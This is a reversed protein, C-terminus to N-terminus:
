IKITKYKNNRIIKKNKIIKKNEAIKKFVIFLKMLQNIDYIKIHKPLYKVLQNYKCMNIFILFMKPVGIEEIRYNNLLTMCSVNNQLQLSNIVTTANQNTTTQNFLERVRIINNNRYENYMNLMVTLIAMCYDNNVVIANPRSSHRTDNENSSGYHHFCNLEESTLTEGLPRTNLNRAIGVHAREPTEYVYTAPSSLASLLFTNQEIPSFNNFEPDSRLREITEIRQTTEARQIELHTLNTARVIPSAIDNLRERLIRQRQLHLSFPHTVIGDNAEGEPIGVTVINNSDNNINQSPAIVRRENNFTERISQQIIQSM